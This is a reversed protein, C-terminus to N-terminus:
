RRLIALCSVAVAGRSHPTHIKRQNTDLRIKPIPLPDDQKAVCFAPSVSLRRYGFM